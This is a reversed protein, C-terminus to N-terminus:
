TGELRKELWEKYPVYPATWYARIKENPAMFSFFKLFAIKAGKMTKYNEDTVIKGKRYVVLRCSEEEFVIFVYGLFYRRSNTLSIIKREEEITTELQLEVAPASKNNM